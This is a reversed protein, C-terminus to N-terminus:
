ILINTDLIREGGSPHASRTAHEGVVEDWSAGRKSEPVPVSGALDLFDPTRAVM